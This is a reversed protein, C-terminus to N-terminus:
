SLVPLRPDDSPIRGTAALVWEAGVLGEPPDGELLGLLIDGTMALAEADLDIGVGLARSLDMHHVVLELVRTAVYESLAMPGQFTQILHDPPLESARQASLRWAGAFADVLGRRGIRRADDRSREAVGPAAGVFDFDFYGVRDCVPQDGDPEVSLYVSIRDAARVLHAALELVTWEGLGPADWDADAIQTLTSEVSAAAATFSALTDMAATKCPM